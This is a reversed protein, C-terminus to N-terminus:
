DVDRLSLEDRVCTLDLILENLQKLRDKDTKAEIVKVWRQKEENSYLRNARISIKARDSSETDWFAKVRGALITSSELEKIKADIKKRYAKLKEIDSGNEILEAELRELHAIKDM